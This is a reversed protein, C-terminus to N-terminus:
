RLRVHSERSSPRESAPEIGAVEVMPNRLFAVEVTAKKLKMQLDAYKNCHNSEEGKLNKERLPPVCRMWESVPM